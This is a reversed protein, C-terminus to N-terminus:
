MLTEKGPLPGLLDSVSRSRGAEQLTQLLGDIVAMDEDDLVPCSPETANPHPEQPQAQEGTRATYDQQAVSYLDGAAM